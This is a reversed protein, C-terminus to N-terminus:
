NKNETVANRDSNMRPVFFGTIGKWVRSGKGQYRTSEVLTWTGKLWSVTVLPQSNPVRPIGFDPARPLGFDGNMGSLNNGGMPTPCVIVMAKDGNEQVSGVSAM